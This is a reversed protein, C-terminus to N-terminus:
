MACCGSGYVLGLRVNHHTIYELERSAYISVVTYPAFSRDTAVFCYQPHTYLLM